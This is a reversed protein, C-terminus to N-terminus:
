GGERGVPSVHGIVVHKLHYDIILRVVIKHSFHYLIHCRSDGISPEDYDALWIGIAYCTYPPRSPTLSLPQIVIAISAFLDRLTPDLVGIVYSFPLWNRGVLLWDSPM